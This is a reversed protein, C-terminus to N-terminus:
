TLLEPIPYVAFNSFNITIPLVRFARYFSQDRNLYKYIKQKM